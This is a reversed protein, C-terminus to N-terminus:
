RVPALLRDHLDVNEVHCGLLRISQAGTSVRAYGYIM